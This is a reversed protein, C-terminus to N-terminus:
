RGLAQLARTFVEDLSGVADVTKLENRYYDLLPATEDRRVPDIAGEISAGRARLPRAIRGMPRRSLSADGVLTTDFGQAALVGAVLRMTTGANGCDLTGHGPACLGGLGRGVVRVVREDLDEIEVGLAAMIGRTRAVDDGPSMGRLHSTGEALSALIWARHSISKDGPVRFAGRLPRTAPRVIWRRM